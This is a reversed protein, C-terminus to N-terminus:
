SDNQINQQLKKEVDFVTVTDSGQSLFVLQVQLHFSNNIPKETNLWLM